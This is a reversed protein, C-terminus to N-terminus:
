RDGASKKNTKATSPTLLQQITAATGQVTVGAGREASTNAVATSTPPSGREAETNSVSVAQGSGREAETNSVSANVLRLLDLDTDNVTVIVNISNVFEYKNSVSDFGKEIEHIDVVKGKVTGDRSTNLNKSSNSVPRQTVSNTSNGIGRITRFALEKIKETEQDKLVINETTQETTRLPEWRLEVYRPVDKLRQNLLPDKLPDEESVVSSEYGTWHQYVFKAEQQPVQLTNYELSDSDKSKFAISLDIKSRLILKPTDLILPTAVAEVGLLLNAGTVAEVIQGFTTTTGETKFDLVNSVSVQDALIRM